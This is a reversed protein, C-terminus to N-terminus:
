SAVPERPRQRRAVYDRFAREDGDSWRPPGDDDHDGGGPDDGGSPEDDAGGDEEASPGRSLWAVVALTEVGSGILAASLATQGAILTGCGSLYLGLGIGALNSWM